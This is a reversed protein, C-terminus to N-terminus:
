KVMELADRLMKDHDFALKPLDDINFWQAEAADDGAKAPECKSLLAMYATTVVRGRPDRNVDSYVGVLRFDVDLQLGAEEKLERRACQETTENMDMFGGPFAWKGMEPQHARKVLLVFIGFNTKALVMTDSTHMARPYDYAYKGDPTMVYDTTM